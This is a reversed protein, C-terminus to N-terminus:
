QIEEIEFDMGERTRLAKLPRIALKYVRLLEADDPISNTRDLVRCTDLMTMLRQAARVPKPWYAWGDSCANTAWVLNNLTRAAPGLVPHHRWRIVASDVDYENMFRSM